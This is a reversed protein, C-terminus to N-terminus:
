SDFILKLIYITLMVMFLIYGCTLKFIPIDSALKQGEKDLGLCKNKKRFKQNDKVTWIIFKKILIYIISIIIMLGIAIFLEKYNMYIM